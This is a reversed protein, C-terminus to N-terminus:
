PNTVGAFGTLSSGAVFGLETIVQFDNFSPLADSLISSVLAITKRDVKSPRVGSAGLDFLVIVTDQSSYMPFDTWTQSGDAALNFDFTDDTDSNNARYPQFARGPEVVVSENWSINLVSLRPDIETLRTQLTPIESSILEVFKRTIEERRQQENENPSPAINLLKEFWPIADIALNPFYQLAAREDFEAICSLGIAICEQRLQEIGSQDIPTAGEGLTKSLFRFAKEPPSLDSGLVLPLSAQWGLTSM